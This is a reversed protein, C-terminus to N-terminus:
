VSIERGLTHDFHQDLSAKPLHAVADGLTITSFTQYWKTADGVTGGGALNLLTRNDEEWGIGAKKPYQEFGVM